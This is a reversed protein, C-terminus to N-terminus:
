LKFSPLIRLMFPVVERWVKAIESCLPSLGLKLFVQSFSPEETKLVCKKSSAVKSKSTM